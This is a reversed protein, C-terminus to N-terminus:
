IAENFYSSIPAKKSFYNILFVQLTATFKSFPKGNPQALSPNRQFSSFSSLRNFNKNTLLSVGVNCEVINLLRNM